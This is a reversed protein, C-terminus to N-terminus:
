IDSRQKADKRMKAFRLDARLPVGFRENGYPFPSYEGTLRYGRREYWGILEHRVSIVNMNISGLGLERFVFEEATALLFDGVGQGQCDVDVTLLGLERTLGDPELKVCGVIDAVAVDPNPKVALLLKAQPDELIETLMTADIRQGGLLAAETTWGKLGSSGRYASNILAVLRPIDAVDAARATLQASKATEGNINKNNKDSNKRKEIVM